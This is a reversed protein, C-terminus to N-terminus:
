VLVQSALESSDPDADANLNTGPDADVNKKKHPDAVSIWLISIWLFFILSGTDLIPLPTPTM